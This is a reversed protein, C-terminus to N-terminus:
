LTQLVCCKFIPRDPHRALLVDPHTNKSTRINIIHPYKRLALFLYIDIPSKEKRLHFKEGEWCDFNLNCLGKCAFCELGSRMVNNLIDVILCQSLGAAITLIFLDECDSVQGEQAPAVVLNKVSGASLIWDTSVRAPLANWDLGCLM